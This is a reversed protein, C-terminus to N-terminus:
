ALGLAAAEAAFEKENKASSELALANLAEGKKKNYAEAKVRVENTYPIYGHGYGIDFTFEAWGAATIFGDEHIAYCDWSQTAVM